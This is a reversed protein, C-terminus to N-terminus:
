VSYTLSLLGRVDPATAEGVAYDGADIGRISEYHCGYLQKCFPPIRTSGPDHSTWSTAQTLAGPRSCCFGGHSSHCRSREGRSLWATCYVM